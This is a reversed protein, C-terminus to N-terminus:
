YGWPHLTHPIQMNNNPSPKYSLIQYHNNPNCSLLKHHLLIRPKSPIDQAFQFLTTRKWTKIQIFELNQLPKGLEQTAELFYQSNLQLPHHPFENSPSKNLAYEIYIQHPEHTVFSSQVRPCPPYTVIACPLWWPFHLLAKSFYLLTLTSLRSLDNATRQLYLPCQYLLSLKLFFSRLM